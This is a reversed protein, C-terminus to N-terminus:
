IPGSIPGQRGPRAINSILGQSDTIAAAGNALGHLETATPFTSPSIQGLERECLRSWRNFWNLKTSVNLCFGFAVLSQEELPAAASTLTDCYMDVSDQAFPGTRVEKPIEATFLDDSFNQSVQGSRAAAAVAWEAGGGKINKIEGYESNLERALKSKDAMWKQFRRESDAKQKPKNPSFSLKSPFDMALFKEYRQGVLLFRSAAMWYTAAARRSENPAKDVGGKEALALASKFHKRAETVRRKDRALITLQIKSAPGCQKPLALGRTRRRKNKRTVRERQTRVCAGNESSKCSMEWALQGIRAHAVLLRDLGGGQGIERLYRKYTKMESDPKGQKEYIGALGFMAAAAEEKSRKRYKKVFSEINSIAEKDMGIGKRYTVANQLANPADPEGGYRRSYDEFKRAAEEYSAIAGYAAGMRVLAKQNRSSNPFRKDLTDYMKIAVGIAKSKEFCVGANYLVEDMGAQDEDMAYIRLYARGCAAFLGQQELDEAKKRLYDVRLKELRGRLEPKAGILKANALMKKALRDMDDHKKLRILSDLLINSAYLASEHKPHKNVIDEFFPLSEELRDHRWYERARLFKMMVLEDGTAYQIYVDFAALMKAQRRGIPKPKPIGHGKEGMNRAKTETHVGIQLANKWGQAAADASDVLRDGRVQGSAVLESFATAAKEWRLSARSPQKEKEARLWLLDAYYYRVEGIDKAKPFAQTYLAYLKEITSLFGMNGTKMAESHWVRAMEGSTGQANDRCEALANGKLIKSKKHAQYVKVLNQIEEAKQKPNGTALMASVVKGQWECVEPARSELAILQRYTYIAKAAKGQELYIGGLIRLMRHAYSKDVREFALLAKEARGVEAYARVFDKKAAKHITKNRPVNRTIKATKFFTELADQPREQNLQVWGKKYLSYAYISSKPFKLVKDYFSEANELDGKEFFYDAFSLYAQPIYKSSPYNKILQHFVKRSETIRKVGDLTYGYYFLVEDMRAYTRFRPSSALKSYIKLSHLLAQKETEFYRQQKSLLSAKQKKRAKDLQPYLEMARFRWYRQKQAYLEALRFMYDPMDKSSPKTAQILLQYQRIKANTINKLKGQIHIFDNATLGPRAKRKTVKAKRALRSNRAAKTVDISIAKGKRRHKPAAQASGLGFLSIVLSAVLLRSPTVQM